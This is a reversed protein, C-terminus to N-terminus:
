VCSVYGWPDTQRNRDADLCKFKQVAGNKMLGYTVGNESQYLGFSVIGVNNCNSIIDASLSSLLRPSSILNSLGPGIIWFSYSMYRGNPYSNYNHKRKDLNIIRTNASEIKIKSKIISDQCSGNSPSSSQRFLQEKSGNEFVLKGKYTCGRRPTHPLILIFSGDSSILAPSIGEM